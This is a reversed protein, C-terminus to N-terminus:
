KHRSSPRRPTAKPGTSPAFPDELVPQPAPKIKGRLIDAHRRCDADCGPPYIEAKRIIGDHIGDHAVAETAPGGVVLAAVPIGILVAIAAVGVLLMGICGTQWSRENTPNASKKARMLSSLLLLILGFLIGLIRAEFVFGLVIFALGTVMMPWSLYWAIGKEKARAEARERAAKKKARKAEKRDARAAEIGPPSTFDNNTTPGPAGQDM